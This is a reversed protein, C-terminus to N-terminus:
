QVAAELRTTPIYTQLSRTTLLERETRGFTPAILREKLGLILGLIAEYKAESIKRNSLILDLWSLCIPVLLMWPVLFFWHSIRPPDKWFAAIVGTAGVNLALFFTNTNSRRTATGNAVDVAWKNLEQAQQEIRDPDRAKPAEIISPRWPGHPEPSIPQKSPERSIFCSWEDERHGSISM